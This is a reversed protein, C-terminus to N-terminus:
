FVTIMVDILLYTTKIFCVCVEESININPDIAEISSDVFTESLFKIDTNYSLAYSQVLSLTM